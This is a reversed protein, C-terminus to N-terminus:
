MLLDQQKNMIKAEEIQYQKVLRVLEQEPCNMRISQCIEDVALLDHAQKTAQNKAAVMNTSPIESTAGARGFTPLAGALNTSAPQEGPAIQSSTLRQTPKGFTPLEQQQMQDRDDAAMLTSLDSSSASKRLGVM